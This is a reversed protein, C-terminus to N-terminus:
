QQLCLNSLIVNQKQLAHNLKTFGSMLTQQVFRLTLGLLVLVTHIINLHTCIYAKQRFLLRLIPFLLSLSSFELEEKKCHGWFHSKQDQQKRADSQKQLVGCLFYVIVKQWM